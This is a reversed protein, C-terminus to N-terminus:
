ECCGVGEFGRHYSQAGHLSRLEKPTGDDDYPLRKDDITIFLISLLDSKNNASLENITFPVEVFITSSSTSALSLADRTALVIITASLFDFSLGVAVDSRELSDM